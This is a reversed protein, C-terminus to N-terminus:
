ATKPISAALGRYQATQKYTNIRFSNWVADRAEGLDKLEGNAMLQVAINGLVTTDIGISDFGGARAANSIGTKINRWLYLIDWYLTGRVMVPENTFRHVEEMKVRGDAYGALMARGGSAGLDFALVRDTM